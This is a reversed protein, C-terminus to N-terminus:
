KPWQLKKVQRNLVSIEALLKVEQLRAIEDDRIQIKTAWQYAGFLSLFVGILLLLVIGYYANKENAKTIELLKNTIELAGEDVKTKKKKENLVLQKELLQVKKDLTSSYVSLYSFISTIVLALGFLCTFKYINDTAVTLNPQM